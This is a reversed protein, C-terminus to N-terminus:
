KLFGRNVTAQQVKGAMQTIDVAEPNKSFSAIAKQLVPSIWQETSAKSKSLLFEV